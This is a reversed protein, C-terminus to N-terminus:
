AGVLRLGAQHGLREVRKVLGKTLQEESQEEYYSVGPDKYEQRHKLTHWIARPMSNAVALIARKEGRHRASRRYLARAYAQTGRSAAPAVQALM